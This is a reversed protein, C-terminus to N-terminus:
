VGGPRNPRGILGHQIYDSGPLPQTLDRYSAETAARSFEAGPRAAKVQAVRTRAERSIADSLRQEKVATCTRTTAHDSVSVLLRLAEDTDGDVIAQSAAAALREIVEITVLAKVENEPVERPSTTSRQGTM